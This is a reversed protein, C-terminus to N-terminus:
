SEASLQTANLLHAVPNGAVPTIGGLPRAPLVQEHREVIVRAQSVRLHLGVLAADSGALEQTRTYAVKAPEPHGHAPHEGVITRRKAGLSKGSRTSFQAQSM